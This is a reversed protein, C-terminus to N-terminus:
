IGTCPLGKTKCYSYFKHTNELKNSFESDKDEKAFFSEKLQVDNSQIHLADECAFGTTWNVCLCTQPKIITECRDDKILIEKIPAEFEVLKFQEYGQEQVFKACNPTLIAGIWEQKKEM